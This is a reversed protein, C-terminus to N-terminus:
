KLSRFSIGACGSCCHGVVVEVEVEEDTGQGGGGGGATDLGHIHDLHADLKARLHAARSGGEGNCLLDVADTARLLEVTSEVGGQESLDDVTGETESDVEVKSLPNFHVLVATLVEGSKLAGAAREESAGETGEHAVRAIQRKHAHLGVCGQGLSLASVVLVYEIGEGADNGLLTDSGEPLTGDGGHHSGRGEVDAHKDGVLSGLINGSSRHAGGGRGELDLEAARHDRGHGSGNAGEGEIVDLRLHLLLLSAGVALEGVGGDTVAEGFGHGLLADSAEPGTEGGVVESHTGVGDDSKEGGLLVSPNEADALLLVSHLAVVSVINASVPAEYRKASAVYRAGQRLRSFSLPPCFWINSCSQSFFFCSKRWDVDRM